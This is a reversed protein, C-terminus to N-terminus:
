RGGLTEISKVIYGLIFCGVMLRIVNFMYALWWNIRFFPNYEWYDVSRHWESYRYSVLQWDLDM